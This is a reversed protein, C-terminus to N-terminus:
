RGLFGPLVEGFCFHNLCWVHSCLMSNHPNERPITNAAKGKLIKSNLLKLNATRSFPARTEEHDILQHNVPLDTANSSIARSADRTGFHCGIGSVIPHLVTWGLQRNCHKACLSNATSFHRSIRLHATMACSKAASRQLPPVVSLHM